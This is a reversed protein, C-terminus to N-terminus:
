YERFLVQNLILLVCHLVGTGMQWGAPVQHTEPYQDLLTMTQTESYLLPVAKPLSFKGEVAVAM